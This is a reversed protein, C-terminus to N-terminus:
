TKETREGPNPCAKVGREYLATLTKKDEDDFGVVLSGNRIYKVGLESTVREM